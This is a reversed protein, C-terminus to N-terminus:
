GTVEVKSIKSANESRDDPHRQFTITMLKGIRPEENLRKFEDYTFHAETGDSLRIYIPNKTRQMHTIRGSRVFEPITLDTSDLHPQSDGHAESGTVDTSALAGAIQGGLTPSRMLQDIRPSLDGLGVSEILFKKFKGM